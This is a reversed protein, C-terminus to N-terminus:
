KPLYFQYSTSFVKKGYLAKAIGKFRRYSVKVIPKDVKDTVSWTVDVGDTKDTHGETDVYNVNSSETIVISKNPYIVEKDTFISEVETIKTHNPESIYDNPTNLVLRLLFLLCFILSTYVIGVLSSLLASETGSYVFGFFLGFMILLIVIGLWGM